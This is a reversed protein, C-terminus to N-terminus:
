SGIKEPEAVVVTVRQYTLSEIEVSTSLYEFSWPHSEHSGM